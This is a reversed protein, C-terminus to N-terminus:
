PGTHREQRGAQDLSRLELRGYIPRLHGHPSSSVEWLSRRAVELSLSWEGTEDEEADHGMEPRTVARDKAHPCRVESGLRSTERVVVADSGGM